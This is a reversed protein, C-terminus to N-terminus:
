STRKNPQDARMRRKRSSWLASYYGCGYCAQSLAVMVSVAQIVYGFGELYTKLTKHEELYSKVRFKEALRTLDDDGHIAGFKADFESHKELEVNPTTSYDGTSSAREFANKFSTGTM